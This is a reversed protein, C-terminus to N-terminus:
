SSRVNEPPYSTICTSLKVKANYCRQERTTTVVSCYISPDGTVLWASACTANNISFKGVGGVGNGSTKGEDALKGGQCGGM